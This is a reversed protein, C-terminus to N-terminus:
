ITQLLAIFVRIASLHFYVAVNEMLEACLLYKTEGFVSIKVAATHKPVPEVKNKYRHSRFVFITSTLILTIWDNVFFINNNTVLKGARWVSAQEVSSHFKVLCRQM